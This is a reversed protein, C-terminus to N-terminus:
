AKNEIMLVPSPLMKKENFSLGPLMKPMCCQSEKAGKRNGVKLDMFDTTPVSNSSSNADFPVPTRVLAKPPLPKTEDVNPQENDVMQRNISSPQLPLSVDGADDDKEQTEKFLDALKKRKSTPSIEAKIDSMRSVISALTPRPTGPTSGHYNLSNGRSPTFDGRVSFYDDDCDSELWALSDFFAADRSGDSRERRSSGDSSIGREGNQGKAALEVVGNERNAVTKGKKESMMVLKKAKAAMSMTLKMCSGDRKEASVCCGM